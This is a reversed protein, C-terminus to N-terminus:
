LMNSIYKRQDCNISVYKKEVIFLWYVLKAPLLSSEILFVTFVILGECRDILELVNVVFALTNCVLFIVVVGVLM